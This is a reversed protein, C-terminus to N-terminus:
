PNKIDKSNRRQMWFIKVTDSKGMESFANFYNTGYDNDSGEKLSM